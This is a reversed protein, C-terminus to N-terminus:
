VRPDISQALQTLANKNIGNAMANVFFSGVVFGDAHNLVEGAMSRDGIGFGVVVPLKTLSKITALKESLDSPLANKVGTTGKRCVYYLMGSGREAIKKIRDDPTSPSILYVPTIDHKICDAFFSEGEEIPLDVVLIGDVGVAKAKKLFDDERNAILIPNYYSFLVISKQSQKRINSILMLVKNIDVQQQLARQGAAQISPGDAVPDSFPVGIELIDVGGNILALASQESYDLGGDGAVMYGVFAKKDNFVAELKNM